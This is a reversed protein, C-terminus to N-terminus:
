DSCSSDVSSTTNLMVDRKSFRLIKWGEIGIARGVRELTDLSPEHAHNEIKCVHSAEMCARFAIDAQTLGMQKRAIKIATGIKMKLRKLIQRKGLDAESSGLESCLSGSPNLTKAYRRGELGDPGGWSDAETDGYSKRMLAEGNIPDRHETEGLFVSDQQDM